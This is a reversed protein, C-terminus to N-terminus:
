DWQIRLQKINLLQAFAKCNLACLHIKILLEATFLTKFNNDHCSIMCERCYKTITAYAM